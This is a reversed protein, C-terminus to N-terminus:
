SPQGQSEVDKHLMLSLGLHTHHPSDSYEAYYRTRDADELVASACMLSWDTLLVGPMIDEIHAQIAEELAQFTQKSVSAGKWRYGFPAPASAM